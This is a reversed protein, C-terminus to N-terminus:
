AEAHNRGRLAAETEGPLVIRAGGGARAVETYRTIRGSNDYGRSPSWGDGLGSSRRKLPPIHWARSTRPRWGHDKESHCREPEPMESRKTTRAPGPDTALRVSAGPVVAPIAGRSM